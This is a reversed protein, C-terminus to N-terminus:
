SPVEQFTVWDEALLSLIFLCMKQEIMPLSLLDARSFTVELVQQNIAQTEM